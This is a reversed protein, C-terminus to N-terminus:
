RTTLLTTVTKLGVNREMVNENQKQLKVFIVLRYSNVSSHAVIIQYLYKFLLIVFLLLLYYIFVVIITSIIMVINLITSFRVCEYKLVKSIWQAM